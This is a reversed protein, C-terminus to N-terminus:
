IPLQPYHVPLPLPLELIGTTVAAASPLRTRMAQRMEQPCGDQLIRVAEGAQEGINGM